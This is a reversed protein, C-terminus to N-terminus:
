NDKAGQQVWHRFVLQECKSLPKKEHPMRIQARGEVITILNSEALNGPVVMPGHKTGKMVGEYTRMDLGSAEYGPGGPQHCELCRIQIIPFVDEAFSTEAAASGSVVTGAVFMATGLAMAGALKVIRGTINM